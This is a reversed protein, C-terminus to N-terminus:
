GEIRGCLLTWTVTQGNQTFSVDPLKKICANSFSVSDGTVPNEILGSFLAWEDTTGSLLASYANKLWKCAASTQQLTFSIEGNRASIKTTMVSGDHAVDQRSADQARAVAIQGVGQGSLVCQGISPHNLVLSTDAFSYATYSMNPM